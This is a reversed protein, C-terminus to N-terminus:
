EACDNAGIERALRRSEGTEVNQVRQAATIIAQQDGREAAERLDQLAPKLEEDAEREVTDVYREAQEGADGDPTELEKLREVGRDLTRNMEDVFGAIEGPNEPTGIRQAAQEIDRCVENANQAFEERSPGDDGGCGALLVLAVLSTPVLTRANM